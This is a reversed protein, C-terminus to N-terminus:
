RGPTITHPTTFFHMGDKLQVAQDDAVPVDQGGPVEEYLDRDPGIPPKPLQRLEAGTLTAASTKFQQKDIFIVFEKPVAGGHEESHGSM